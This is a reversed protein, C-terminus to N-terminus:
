LQSFWENCVKLFRERSDIYLDEAHNNNEFLVYSKKCTSKKYLLETHWPYVTPDNEGAIYLSPIAIDHVVDAPNIKKLFINGPRVNRNEKIDFKKFTPIFAEPKWFHSEIKNLDAPPSVAVMVDVDKNIASHIVVLAGGLSFGLLGIKSYRQRAWNIVAKLDMPEETTFTFNGASKGHGRFDLTVVDYNKALDESLDKFPKTDKCMYWGPAIIIVKDNGKQYHNCAIDVNDETKVFFEKM